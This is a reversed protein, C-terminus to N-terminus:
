FKDLDNMFKDLEAADMHYGHKDEPYAGTRVDDAWAGYATAAWQFFDAYAKAHSVPEPMMNFTDFDVMECGDAAGGAAISIVPVRLKKAIANTVEIPTLEITMAMMGNEQYEYAMRFVKMADEATKGCRKYGGQRSTQWGSLAGVHGFVVLWNDAMYKLTENSIGMPLLSDAGNNMYRAGNELGLEKSAFTPTQMVFNIHIYQAASRMTRLWWPSNAIQMDVNEGPVTLRMIDCGAMEAAMAFYQDRNAPCMQVLKKGEDKCKQLYAISKRGKKMKSAHVNKDEKSIEIEKKADAM